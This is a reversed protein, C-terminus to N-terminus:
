LDSGYWGRDVRSAGSAERQVYGGTTKHLDDTHVGGLVIQRDAFRGVMVEKVSDSPVQLTAPVREDNSAIEVGRRFPDSGPTRVVKVASARRDWGTGRAIGALARGCQVKEEQVM